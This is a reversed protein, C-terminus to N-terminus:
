NLVKLCDTGSATRLKGPVDHAPVDITNRGIHIGVSTTAIALTDLSLSVTLLTLFSRMRRKTVVLERGDKPSQCKTYEPACAVM